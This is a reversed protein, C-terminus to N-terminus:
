IRAVEEYVAEYRRTVATLDFLERVRARASTGLHERAQPTLTLLDIIARALADSDGPPVIRGTDGIILASDGVDTAVCPVGCAMAEGIALPFAESVSSSVNLDMAAYLRPVDRRPGLLHCNKGIKLQQVLEMLEANEHNVKTGCLLFHVDPHTQMVKAAARLFNAHDKLPDYRAVLGVLMTNTDIGLERRIGSRAEPDPQFVSTDFGNPIVTMKPDAFGRAAYLKRSHESCLVVRAPVRHSLVACTNVTVLTSRKTLGAVHDSHHIGWVAKGGPVLVSALGGILNSHDMWTQIITPREARLHRVLRLMARPDPIGPKMGMTKIPIGADLIPGAVTLNDILSVASSEFRARDTRLILNRLMTEAGGFEFSNIIHIVRIKKMFNPIFTITDTVQVMCRIPSCALSFIM